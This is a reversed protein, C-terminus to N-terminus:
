PARVPSLHDKQAREAQQGHKNLVTANSTRELPTTNGDREQENAVAMIHHIMVPSGQQSERKGGGHQRTWERAEM